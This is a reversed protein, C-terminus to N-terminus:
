QAPVPLASGDTQIEYLIGSDMVTGETALNGDEGFYYRKRDIDQWGTAKVGDPLLYYVGEGATLWGTCMAGTASFFRVSGDVEAWGTTVSGDGNLYYNVGLYRTWGACPSGDEYCYWTGNKWFWGDYVPGTKGRFVPEAGTSNGVQLPQEYLRVRARRTVLGTGKVVVCAAKGYVSIQYAGPDLRDFSLMENLDGLDCRYGDIQLQEQMVVSGAADTVVVEVTSVKSNAATVTGEIAFDEGQAATQPINADPLSLDEGNLRVVSVANAIVYGTQEGDDIRYYLEGRTNRCVATAHLMEGAMLSRLRISDNEGLLCPQSRLNSGFRTRVFVDTGFLQCSDAYQKNGFYIVGDFIMWDAFYDAFEKISCTIVNGEAGGLSTYFSEVFYVTGDLIANIVCAHGYTAGAETSTWQFGVLINYADQTGGRTITNLAQELTYNSAPYATIYYGGTTKERAAYADFQRNGDYVELSANIGMHWLQHSVMLGCFGSFSNRQATSLSYSYVRRAERIVAQEKSLTETEACTTGPLATLLLAACLLIAMARKM